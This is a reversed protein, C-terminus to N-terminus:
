GAIMVTQSFSDDGDGRQRRFFAGIREGAVAAGGIGDPLGDVPDAGVIGLLEEFTEVELVAVLGDGIEAVGHEAKFADALKGGAFHLIFNKPVALGFGGAILIEGFTAEDRGRLEVGRLGRLILGRAIGEDRCVFIDVPLHVRIQAIFQRTGFRHLGFGVGAVDRRAGEVDGAVAQEPAHGGVDALNGANASKFLLNLTQANGFEGFDAFEAEFDGFGAGGRRFTGPVIAGAAGITTRLRDGGSEGSM